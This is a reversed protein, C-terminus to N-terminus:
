GPCHRRPFTGQTIKKGQSAARPGQIRLCPIPLSSPVTNKLKGTRGQERTELSPWTGLLLADLGERPLPHAASPRPDPVQVQVSSGTLHLISGQHPRPQKEKAVFTLWGAHRVARLMVPADVRSGKGKLWRGADLGTPEQVKKWASHGLGM